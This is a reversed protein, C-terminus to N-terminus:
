IKQITRKLNHIARRASKLKESDHAALAADRKAKLDRIRAKIGAKAAGHTVHHHAEIGLANCLAGLLHEKNLQSYGKVADHEIGKAIERLEAVTKHKLEDFTYAMEDGENDSLNPPIGDGTNEFEHPAIRGGRATFKRPSIRGGGIGILQAPADRRRGSSFLL